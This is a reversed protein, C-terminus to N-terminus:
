TPTLGGTAGDLLRQLPGHSDTTDGRTRSSLICGRSWDPAEPRGRLKVTLRIAIQSLVKAPLGEMFAYRTTVPVRKPKTPIACTSRRNRSPCGRESVQNRPLLRARNMTPPPIAPQAARNSTPRRLWGGLLRQLPGHVTQTDGGRARSLNHARPAQDLAEPRGRLKVTLGAAQM